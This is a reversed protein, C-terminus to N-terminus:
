ELWLIAVGRLYVESGLNKQRAEAYVGQTGLRNRVRMQGGLRFRRSLVLQDGVSRKRLPARPLINWLLLHLNLFLLIKSEFMVAAEIEATIV